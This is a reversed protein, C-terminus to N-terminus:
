LRQEGLRIPDGRLDPVDARARDEKRDVRRHAAVALAVQALVRLERALRDSEGVLGAVGPEVERDRSAHRVRKEAAALRSAGGTQAVAISSAAPSGVSPAPTTM